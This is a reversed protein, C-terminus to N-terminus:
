GESLELFRKSVNKINYNEIDGVQFAKSYDRELFSDVLSYDPNIPNINLIPRGTLAYDILKSPLQVRTGNDLNVLFDMQSLEWLLDKRDLPDHIIIKGKSKKVLPILFNKGTRSYIHFRFDQKKELLYEILRIPSRVGKLSVGGAYAFSQVSKKIFNQQKPIDEFNFGQPIINIKSHFKSYYASIASKVPISIFNAKRCFWKELYSFYFPNPLSDLKNGMFPDGCDAVWTKAIPEKKTRAWATGWHISHPVAITIMLDYDKEKKLANKVKWMIEIDPYNILIYLLKGFKRKWDGIIKWKSKALPKFKLLGYDKITIPYKHTFKKYNYDRKYTLVTVLHGQKTFEKALETARFSRPSNDPYFAKCVILIKRQTDM